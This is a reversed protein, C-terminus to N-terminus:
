GNLTLLLYEKPLWHQGWFKCNQDLISKSDMQTSNNSFYGKLFWQTEKQYVYYIPNAEHAIDSLQSFIRM